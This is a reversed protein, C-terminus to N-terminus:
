LFNKLKYFHQPGKIEVLKQAIIEAEKEIAAIDKKGEKLLLFNQWANERWRGIIINLFHAYIVFLSKEIFVILKSNEKLSWVVERLSEFIIGNVRDYDDKFEEPAKAALLTQALDNNVHANVGLAMYLFQFSTNERAKDFLIRWAPPVGEGKKYRKLPTSYYEFFKIDVNWMVDEHQFIGTGLNQAVGKTIILYTHNFARVHSLDSQPLESDLAEMQEIVDTISDLKM